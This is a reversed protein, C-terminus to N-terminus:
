QLMNALYVLSDISVYLGPCIKDTRIDHHPIIHNKDIPVGYYASLFNILKACKAIQPATPGTSAYGALGIGISTLNPNSGLFETYKKSNVRLGAHWATNEPMVLCIDDGNTDILFHYSVQSNYDLLWKKSSEFSGESMHIIFAQIKNGRRLYECNPSM